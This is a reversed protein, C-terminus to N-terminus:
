CQLLTPSFFYIFTALKVISEKIFWQLYAIESKGQSDILVMKGKNDGKKFLQLFSTSIHVFGLHVWFKEFM